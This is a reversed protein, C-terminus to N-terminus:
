AVAAIVAIRYASLIRFYRFLKRLRRAVFCLLTFLMVYLARATAVTRCSTGAVRIPLPNPYKQTM